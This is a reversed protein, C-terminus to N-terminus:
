PLPLLCQVKQDVAQGFLDLDRALYDRDSGVKARPDKELFDQLVTLEVIQFLEPGRQVEIKRAGNKIAAYEVLRDIM